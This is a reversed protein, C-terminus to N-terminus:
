GALSIHELWFFFFFFCVFLQFIGLYDDGALPLKILVFINLQQQQARLSTEKVKEERL